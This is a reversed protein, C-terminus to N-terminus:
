ESKANDKNLKAGDKPTGLYQLSKRNFNVRRLRKTLTFYLPLRM